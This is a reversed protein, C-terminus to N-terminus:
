HDDNEILLKIFIIFAEIDIGNERLKKCLEEINSMKSARKKYKINVIKLSM